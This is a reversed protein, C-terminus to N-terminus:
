GMSVLLVLHVPHVFLQYPRRLCSCTNRDIRLLHGLRDQVRESILGDRDLAIFALYYM